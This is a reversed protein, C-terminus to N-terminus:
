VPPHIANEDGIEHFLNLIYNRDAGLDPSGSRSTATVDMRLGGRVPSLTIELRSAHHWFTPAVRVVLRGPTAQEITWGSFSGVSHTINTYLKAPDGYFIRSRVEPLPYGGTTWARNLTFYVHLRKVPGPANIFAANNAILDGGLYVLGLFLALALIKLAKM